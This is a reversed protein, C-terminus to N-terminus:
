NEENRTAAMNALEEASVPKHMSVANAVTLWHFCRPLPDEASPTTDHNWYTINQFEAHSVFDGVEADSDQKDKGGSKKELVYGRYGDPLSLTAGQLKRGRFFAEEVKVGDVEVGTSRPKFYDSVPAAGNQRIGCPLLHVGGLDTSAPSLDVTATVGAAAAPLTAQDM